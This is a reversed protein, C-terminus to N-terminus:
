VESIHCIHLSSVSTGRFLLKIKTKASGLMNNRIVSCRLAMDVAEFEM